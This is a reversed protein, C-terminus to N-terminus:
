GVYYTHIRVMPQVGAGELNGQAWSYRERIGEPLENLSIENFGYRRYFGTLHSVSFMYLDDNHCAEALAGVVLHAYGKKRFGEPTYVGDVEYGDIHRRCRAVSVLEEGLFVGFIRDIEPDGRTNHYDVWINDAKYFEEGKLERVASVAEGSLKDVSSITSDTSEQELKSRDKEDEEGEDIRFGGSPVILEFRAGKGAIGTERIEIGTISLIEHSLFLGHGYGEEGSQNFLTKKDSDVIGPGDDEVIIYCKDDRINYNVIIGTVEGKFKLPNEFLHYFVTSLYPDAFIELRETWPHFDVKGMDLKGAAKKVEDQVSLWAPSKTGLDRFDRSIELRRHVNKIVDKLKKIFIHFDPETFKGEETERIFGSIVNLNNSIDTRIIGTLTNLKRTTNSLASETMVMDTVNRITEIAGNTNGFPDKLATASFHLYVGSQGKFHPILLDAIYNDSEKILNPYKSKTAPDENLALDILIPRRKGYFPIAYEYNGKNLIESKKIGTLDEIAKNWAIVFGDKNIAFTADPLFEIIENLQQESKRLKFSLLSVIVGILTFILVRSITSVILTIDPPYYVSTILLGYIMAIFILFPYCRKPYWYAALIIPFYMLHALVITIGMLIGALNIGITLITLILLILIRRRQFVINKLFNNQKM